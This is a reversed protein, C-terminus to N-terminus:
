GSMYHHYISIYYLLYYVIRLMKSQKIDGLAYFDCILNKPISSLKRIWKSSFVLGIDKIPRKLLLLRM